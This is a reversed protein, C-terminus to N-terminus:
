FACNQDISSNKGRFNTYLLRFKDESIAIKKIKKEFFSFILLMAVEPSFSRNNYFKKGSFM